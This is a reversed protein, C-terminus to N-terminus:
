SIVLKLLLRTWFKKQDSQDRAPEVGTDIISGNCVHVITGEGWVSNDNRLCREHIARALMRSGNPSDAYAYVHLTLDECGDLGALTKSSAGGAQTYIIQPLPVGQRAQEPFIRADQNTGVLSAITPVTVGDVTVSPATRLHIVFDGTLEDLFGVKGNMIAKRAYDGKAGRFYRRTTQSKTAKPKGNFL